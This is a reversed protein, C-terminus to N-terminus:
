GEIPVLYSLFLYCFVVCSFPTRGLFCCYYVRFSLLLRKHDGCECGTQKYFVRLLFCPQCLSPCPSPYLMDSRLARKSSDGCPSCGLACYFHFENNVITQCTKLSIKSLKQLAWTPLLEPCILEQLTVARLTWGCFDWGAGLRFVKQYQETKRHDKHNEKLGEHFIVCERFNYISNQLLGHKCPHSVKSCGSLQILDSLVPM